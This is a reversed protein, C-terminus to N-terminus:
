VKIPLLHVFVVLAVGGGMVLLLIGAGNLATRGSDAAEGVLEFVVITEILEVLFVGLEGLEVFCGGLEVAITGVFMIRSIVVIGAKLSAIRTPVM